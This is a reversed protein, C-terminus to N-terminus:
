LFHINNLIESIDHSPRSSAHCDEAGDIKISSSRDPDDGCPLTIISGVHERCVDVCTDKQIRGM